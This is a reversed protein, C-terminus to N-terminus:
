CGRRPWELTTTTRSSSSTAPSHPRTAGDDAVCQEDRGGPSRQPQQKVQKQQHKPAPVSAIPAYIGSPPGPPIGESTSPRAAAAAVAAAAAYEPPPVWIGGVFVVQQPPPSGANAQSTPSPRRSHLRYKQLLKHRGLILVLLCCSLVSALVFFIFCRSCTCPFSPFFFSEHWSSCFNEFKSYVSCTM